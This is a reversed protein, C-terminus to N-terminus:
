WSLDYQETGQALGEKRYLGIEGGRWYVFFEPAGLFTVILSSKPQETSSPPIKKFTPMHPWHSPHGSLPVKQAVRTAEPGDWTFTSLSCSVGCLQGRAEFACMASVPRGM